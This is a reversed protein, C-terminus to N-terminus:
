SSTGRLRYVTPAVPEFLDRLAHLTESHGVILYGHPHLQRALREFVRRQTARDFYIVVNRCFIADFRVRIPWTGAVLNIRRYTVMARVPERVRIWGTWPGTGRLFGARRYHVPVEALATAPYVARVADALVESDIDSALLRFNWRRKPDLAGAVAMAISYPEEGSSCGASWIRLKAAGTREARAVFEPVVRSTLFTFHRPERFFATKNTTIANLLAQREVGEPDQTELYRCYATFSDLGLARLRRGLRAVVLAQKADGLAIGALDFITARLAAYESPRIAFPGPGGRSM